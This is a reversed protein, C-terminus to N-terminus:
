ICTGVAVTLLDRMGPALGLIIAVIKIFSAFRKDKIDSDIYHILLLAIAIKVLIFLAPNVGLLSASLPHQEGCRYVSTAVFTACGDLVQGALILSNLKDSFFGKRFHNVIVKIGLVIFVAMAAILIFGDLAIFKSADLIIFPVCIISGFIAFIRYLESDDKAMKRAAVLCAIAIGATLFWIGPTFTYFNPDLPNCTKTFMGMDNLVRFAAGFLIFPLLAFGFRYDLAIKERKLMPYIFFYVVLFLIAAYTLTNVPNYGQVSADMIPRCFYEFLLEQVM